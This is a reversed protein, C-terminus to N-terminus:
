KLFYQHFDAHASENNNISAASKAADKCVSALKEADSQVLSGTGVVFGDTDLTEKPVQVFGNSNGTRIATCWKNPDFSGHDGSVSPIAAGNVTSVDDPTDRSHAAFKFKREIKSQTDNAALGDCGEGIGTSRDKVVDLLHGGVNIKGLLDSLENHGITTLSV